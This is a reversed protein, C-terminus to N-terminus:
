PGRISPGVTISFLVLSNRERRKQWNQVPSVEHWVVTNKTKMISVSFLLHETILCYNHSVKCIFANNQLETKKIRDTQCSLHKLEAYVLGM